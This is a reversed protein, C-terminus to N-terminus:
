GAVNPGFLQRYPLVHNVLAAPHVIHEVEAALRRWTAAALGLGPEGIDGAVVTLRRQALEKFRRVLEPDGSDFAAELRALA